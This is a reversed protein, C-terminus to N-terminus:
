PVCGSESAHPKRSTINATCHHMALVNFPCGGRQNKAYQALMSPINASSEVLTREVTLVNWSVVYSSTNVVYSSGTMQAIDSHPVSRSMLSASSCAAVLSCWHLELFCAM